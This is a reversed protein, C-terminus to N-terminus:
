TPDEETVTWQGWDVPAIEGTDFVVADAFPESAPDNPDNPVYRIEVFRGIFFGQVCCDDFEVRYCRGAMLESAPGSM